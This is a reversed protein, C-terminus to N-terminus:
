QSYDNQLKYTKNNRDEDLSRELFSLLAPNSILNSKILLSYIKLKSFM